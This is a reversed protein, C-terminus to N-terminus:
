QSGCEFCSGVRKNVVLARQTTTTAVANMCDKAMHGVKNCKVRNDKQNNNLRKKSKANRVAYGKLKHDMLNNVIRIADQLRMPEAAIVNWQINNPLGGIFKEVQDEEQPVMKTCLM